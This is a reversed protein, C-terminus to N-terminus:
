FLLMLILNNNYLFKSLITSDLGSLIGSMDIISSLFTIITFVIYIYLLGEFFGFIIGGTKNCQKLIPLEAIKEMVAKAFILLIQAVIFLIVIVVINIVAISIKESAIRVLNEKAADMVNDVQSLVYNEIVTPLSKDQMNSNEEDEIVEGNQEDEILTTYIKNQLNEQISTNNIIVYSIPRYLILAILIAVFFSVVKFAMGVLGKKYGLYITLAIILIIIVDLIIM